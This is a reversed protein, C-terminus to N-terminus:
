KAIECVGGEGLAERVVEMESMREGEAEVEICFVKIERQPNAVACKWPLDLTNLRRWCQWTRMMWRSSECFSASVCADRGDFFGRPHSFSWFFFGKINISSFSRIWVSHGRNQYDLRSCTCWVTAKYSLFQPFSMNCITFIFGKIGERGGRGGRASDRQCFFVSFFKKDFLSSLQNTKYYKGVEKCDGIGWLFFFFIVLRTRYDRVNGGLHRSNAISSVCFFDIIVQTWPVFLPPVRTQQSWVPHCFRTGSAHWRRGGVGLFYFGVVCAWISICVCVCVNHLRHAVALWSFCCKIRPSPFLPVAAQLGTLAVRAGKFHTGTATCRQSRPM